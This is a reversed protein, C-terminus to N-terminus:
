KLKAHFSLCYLRTSYKEKTKYKKVYNTRKKIDITNYISHFVFFLPVVIVFSLSFFIIIAASNAARAHTAVM